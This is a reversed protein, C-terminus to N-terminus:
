LEFMWKSHAFLIRMSRLLVLKLNIKTCSENSIHCSKFFPALRMRVAACNKTCAALSVVLSVDDTKERKRTAAICCRELHWNTHMPLLLAEKISTRVCVSRLLFMQKCLKDHMLQISNRRAAKIENRTESSACECYSINSSRQTQKKAAAPKLHFEASAPSTYSKLANEAIQQRFLSSRGIEIIPRGCVCVRVCVCRSSLLKM